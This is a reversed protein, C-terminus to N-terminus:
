NIKDIETKCSSDDEETNIKYKMIFPLPFTIVWFVILVICLNKIGMEMMPKSTTNGIRSGLKAIGLTAGMIETPFATGVFTYMLTDVNSSGLKTIFCFVITLINVTWFFFLGVLGILTAIFFIVITIKLSICRLLYSVAFCGIVGSMSICPGMLYPNEGLNEINLSIAFISTDAVAFIITVFIIKLLTYKNCCMIKLRKKLTIKENEGYNNPTCLTLDKISSGNIKMMSNIRMQAKHIKNQSFYFKPSERVCFLYLFFTTCFIMIILCMIRWQIGTCMILAVFIEGIAWAVNMYSPYIMRSKEPISDALFNFSCCDDSMTFFGISFSAILCIKPSAFIILIILMVNNGIIGFIMLPLRGIIDAFGISLFCGITAGLFFSGATYFASTETNCYWDFETVYNFEKKADLSRFLM